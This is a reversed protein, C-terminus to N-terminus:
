RRYDQLDGWNPGIEVDVGIPCGTISIGRDIQLSKIVLDVWYEVQDERVEAVISDHVVTFPIIDNSLGKRDIEKMADVLGLLNIDSAVSQILFNVGSRVSHKAVGKNPSRSEPLRRKRGFHSYIYANNEIFVNQVNIYRELDKAEAFYRKIFSRAETFSVEASKAVTAPGAQYMIGFTIAKAHQRKDPYLNKVENVECPLNFINKAIYSHFDLKDIFAQQLFRDNSLVAAYYVEATKLDVQVIKYGPRAKFLKKIDKNDRPINQYNLTGSSSLRGSTTGHINFSSRLRGDKDVGKVISKIYTNLIKSKTRLDLIAEVLPHLPALEALVEKDVSNAGGETKKIPKLGIIDFFLEQLQKTSNPNFTKKHIREFNLVDKDLAIEALCEEIDIKYDDELAFLGDIDIPGGNSELKMLADTAPLLINKYLNTFKENGEILPSFKEKLQITGDGDKCAYPALIDIPFMGYNFDELKIKEKRCFTKRYEDLEREYDGLDTFKLSLPKLGHTGVAENLTYHMLMTDDYHPFTFGFDEHMFQIDFKANHFIIPLKNFLDQIIEKHKRIIDSSVFFGEHAKTTFVVGIINGKRPSLSTTETDVVLEKAEQLKPLIYELFVEEESVYLYDKEVLQAEELNEESLIKLLKKFAAIIDARYQPKFITLQPNILPFFRKEILMGNYKTIGTMGCVYKLAEAGVPCVVTYQDLISLDLDIDKKLIKDQPNSCLVHKDFDLADRSVYGAFDTAQSPTPFVFVVRKPQKETLHIGNSKEEVITVTQDPKITTIAKKPEPKKDTEGMIYALANADREKSSVEKSTKIETM